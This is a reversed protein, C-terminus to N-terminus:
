GLELKRPNVTAKEWVQTNTHDHKVVYKGNEWLARQNNDVSILNAAVAEEVTLRIGSSSFFRM